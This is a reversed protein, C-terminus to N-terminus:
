VFLYKKVAKAILSTPSVSLSLKSATAHIHTGLDDDDMEFIRQDVFRSSRPFELLTYNQRIQKRTTILKEAADFLVEVTQSFDNLSQVERTGLRTPSEPQLTIKIRDPQETENEQIEDHVKSLNLSLIGYTPIAVRMGDGFIDYLQPHPIRVKIDDYVQQTFEHIEVPTEQPIYTRVSIIQVTVIDNFLWRKFNVISRGVRRRFLLGLVFPVTWNVIMLIISEATWESMASGESKDYGM